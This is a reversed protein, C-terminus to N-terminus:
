VNKLTQGKRIKQLKEIGFSIGCSIIYTEIFFPILFFIVFLIKDAFMFSQAPQGFSNKYYDELFLNWVPVNILRIPALLANSVRYLANVTFGSEIKLTQEPTAAMNSQGILIGALFLLTLAIALTIKFVTPKFVRKINNKTERKM